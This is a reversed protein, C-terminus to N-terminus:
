INIQCRLIKKPLTDTLTKPGNKFQITKKNNLKLLEKYIKSLLGKDLHIKQLYKRGIRPKDELERSM